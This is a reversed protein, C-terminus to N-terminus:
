SGEAYRGAVASDPLHLPRYGPKWYRTLFCRAALVGLPTIFHEFGGAKGTSVATAGIWHWAGSDTRLVLFAAQVLPNRDVALYTQAGSETAHAQILAQEVSAIYSQQDSLPLELRHDVQRIFQAAFDQATTL